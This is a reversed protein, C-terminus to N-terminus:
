QNWGLAINSKTIDLQVLLQFVHYASGADDIIYMFPIYYPIPHKILRHIPLQPRQNDIDLPVFFFLFNTAIGILM